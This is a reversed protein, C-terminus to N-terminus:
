LYNKAPHIMCSLINECLLVLYPSLPDGQKFGQSPNLPSRSGNLIVQYSVILICQMILLTIMPPFEKKSLVKHMFVWSVNDYAKAIDLKIACWGGKCKEHVMFIKWVNLPWYFIILLLNDKLLLM